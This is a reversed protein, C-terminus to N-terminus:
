GDGHVQNEELRTYSLGVQGNVRWIVWVFSWIGDAYDHMEAGDGDGM